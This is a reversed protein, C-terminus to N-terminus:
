PRTAIAHVLLTDGWTAAGVLSPLPVSALQSLAAVSAATIWASACPMCAVVRGLWGLTPLAARHRRGELVASLAWTTAATSGEKPLDRATRHLHRMDRISSQRWEVQGPAVEERLPLPTPFRREVRERFWDTADQSVVLRALAWAEFGIVVAWQIVRSLM